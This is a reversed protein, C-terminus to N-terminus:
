QVLKGVLLLAGPYFCTGQFRQPRDLNKAREGLLKMRDPQDPLIELKVTHLADPLDTGIPLVALRYYLCFTDFRSIRQPPQDDVTVVVQGSDPGIVDYIAASTGRFKFSITDGPHAGRYLTSLRTAFYKFADDTKLDLPVFGASLQAEQIPVMRADEYNGIM